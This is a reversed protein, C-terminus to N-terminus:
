SYCACRVDTSEGLVALKLQFHSLNRIDNQDDLIPVKRNRKSIDFASSKLILINFGSVNMQSQSTASVALVSPFDMGICPHIRIFDLCSFVLVQSYDQTQYIVGFILYMLYWLNRVSRSRVTLNRVFFSHQIELIPSASNIRICTLFAKM